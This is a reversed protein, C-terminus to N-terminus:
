LDSLGFDLGENSFSSDIDTNAEKRLTDLMINSGSGWRNDSMDKEMSMDDRKVDPNDALLVKDTNPDLKIVDKTDEKGAFKLNQSMCMDCNKLICSSCKSAEKLMAESSFHYKETTCNPLVNADVEKVSALVDRVLGAAEVTPIMTSLKSELKDLSVGATVAKYAAERIGDRTSYNTSTEQRYYGKVGGERKAPAYGQTAIFADRLIGLTNENAELTSRLASAKESSIRGSFHLDDIYSSAIKTDIKGDRPLVQCGTAKAVKEDLNDFQSTKITQIIYTPSTAATKISHIAEEANSYLSVDLYVNGLLGQLSALKKIEPAYERIVDGSYKKQIANKLSDGMHGKLMENQIFALIPRVEGFRDIEVRAEEAAAKKSIAKNFEERVCDFNQMPLKEKSKGSKAATKESKYLIAARLQEKSEINVSSEIVGAVKLHSTYESLISENYEMSSLVKKRLEKCMGQDHSACVHRKPSGVVYKAMRIRSSGLIRAADKCSDFPSLDIYVNGLLGQENALKKLEEKAAKILKPQYISSLKQALPSGTLGLMMEKKATNIVGAVDESSIKEVRAASDSTNPIISATKDKGTYTWSEVLQPIIQVNMPVPINDKGEVSICAWDLDPIKAQANDGMLKSIDGLSM